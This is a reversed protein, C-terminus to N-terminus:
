LKSQARKKGMTRKLIVGRCLYPTEKWLGTESKMSLSFPFCFGSGEGLVILYLIDGVLGLGGGRRRRRRMPGLM